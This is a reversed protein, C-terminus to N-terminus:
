RRGSNEARGHNHGEFFMNYYFDWNEKISDSLSVNQCTFDLSAEHVSLPMFGYVILMQVFLLVVIHFGHDLCISSISHNCLM